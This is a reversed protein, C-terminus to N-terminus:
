LCGNVGLVRVKGGRRNLWEQLDQCIVDDVDSVPQGDFDTGLLADFRSM